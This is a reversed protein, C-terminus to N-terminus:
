SRVMHIEDSVLNAVPRELGAESDAGLITPLTVLTNSDYAGEAYDVIKCNGQTAWTGFINMKGLGSARNHITVVTAAIDTLDTHVYADCVGNTTDGIIAAALNTMTAEKDAGIVYQVDGLTGYQRLKADITYQNISDGTFYVVYANKTLADVMIQYPLGGTAIPSGLASLLGGVPNRTYQSVTYSGYNTVYANLGDPSLVMNYPGSNTAIPSDLASLLGGVPNRTFQSVTNNGKNATYANLGDSSVVVAAPTSGAGTSIPSGLPTLIGTSPDRTFQSVTNAGMNATYANLGDPSLYIGAPDVGTTVASRLVYLGTGVGKGVKISLLDGSVPQSLFTMPVAALIGQTNSLQHSELLTEKQVSM